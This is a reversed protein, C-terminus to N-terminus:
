GNTKEFSEAFQIVSVFWVCVCRVSQFLLHTIFITKQALTERKKGMWRKKKKETKKRSETSFENAWNILRCICTSLGICARSQESIFISLIKHLMNENPILICKRARTCGLREHFEAFVQMDMFEYQNPLQVASFRHLIEFDKTHVCM